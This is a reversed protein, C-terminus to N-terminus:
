ILRDRRGRHGIDADSAKADAAFYAYAEDFREVLDSWFSIRRIQGLGIARNDGFERAFYNELDSGYYITDFGHMSFVPNGREPPAEPLFRHSYLPILKPAKALVERLIAIRDESGAPRDGWEPLWFGNEVDFSLCEFPWQLMARIRPDEGGWNYGRAPQRELFLDILDPPFTVGYREQAADIESQTYGSTWLDM